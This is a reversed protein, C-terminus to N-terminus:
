QAGGGMQALVRENVQKSYTRASETAMPKKDFLAVAARIEEISIGVRPSDAHDWNRGGLFYRGSDCNLPGPLKGATMLELYRMVPRHVERCFNDAWIRQRERETNWLRERIEVPTEPRHLEM